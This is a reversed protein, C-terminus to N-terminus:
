DKIEKKIEAPVGYALSNKPIDKVVAAGAGIVSNEGIKINQIISAGIGIQSYDGIVVGGALHVGPAIFSFRGIINDHDISASTNIIAGDGINSDANIVVGAVVLIGKGFKVSSSIVANPHIANIIKFNNKLINFIKERIKNNGIAIFVGEFSDKLDELLNSVKGLVPIGYVKKGQLQENDDIFGAITYKKMAQITDYSVKGHGGAGIIAIKM